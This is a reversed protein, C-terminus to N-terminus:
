CGGSACGCKPEPMLELVPVSYCGGDGPPHDCGRSSEQRQQGPCRKPDIKKTLTGTM